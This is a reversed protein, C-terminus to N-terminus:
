PRRFILIEGPTAAFILEEDVAVAGVGGGLESEAIPAPRGPDALDFVRLAGDGAVFLREGWM